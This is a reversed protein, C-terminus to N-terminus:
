CRVHFFLEKYGKIDGTGVPMTEACDCVVVTADTRTEKIRTIRVPILKVLKM